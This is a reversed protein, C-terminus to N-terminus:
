GERNDDHGDLALPSAAPPLPTFVGGVLPTALRKVSPLGQVQEPQLRKVCDRMDIAGAEYGDAFAQCELAGRDTEPLPKHATITFAGGGACQFVAVIEALRERHTKLFPLIKAAPGDPRTDFKLVAVRRNQVDWVPLYVHETSKVGAKCAVCGDGLCLYQKEAEDFHSAFQEPHLTFFMLYHTAKAWLGIVPLSGVHGPEPLGDENLLAFIDKKVIEKREV